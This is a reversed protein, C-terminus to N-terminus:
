KRDSMPTRVIGNKLSRGGRHTDEVLDMFRLSSFAGKCRMQETVYEVSSM